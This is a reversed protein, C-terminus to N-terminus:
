GYLAFGKHKTGTTETRYDAATISDFFIDRFFVICISIQLFAMWRQEMAPYIPINKNLLLTGFLFSMASFLLCIYDTGKM